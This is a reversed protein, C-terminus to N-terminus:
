RGKMRSVVGAGNSLRERLSKTAVSLNPMEARITAIPGLAIVFGSVLLKFGALETVLAPGFARIFVAFAHILAAPAFLRVSTQLHISPKASRDAPSNVIM